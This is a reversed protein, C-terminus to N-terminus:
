AKVVQRLASGLERRRRDLERALSEGTTIAWNSLLRAELPQYGVELLVAEYDSARPESIAAAMTRALPWLGELLPTWAAGLQDAFSRLQAGAATVASRNEATFLQSMVSALGEEARVVEIAADATGSNM